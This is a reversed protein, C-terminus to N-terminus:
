HMQSKKAQMFHFLCIVHIIDNTFFKAENIASALSSEFDSHIISPNFSLNENLYQFIKYYSIKDLYKLLIFCILVTKNEVYNISAIIM